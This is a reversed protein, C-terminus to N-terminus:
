EARPLKDIERTNKLLADPVPHPSRRGNHNQLSARLSLMRRQEALFQAQAQKEEARARGIQAVAHAVIWGVISFVGLGVVILGGSETTQEMSQSRALATTTAAISLGSIHQDRALATQTAQIALQKNIAEGAIATQAAHAQAEEVEAMNSIQTATQQIPIATLQAVVATQQAYIAQPTAAANVANETVRIAVAMQTQAMQDRVEQSPGFPNLGIGIGLIGCIAMAILAFVVWPTPSNQVIM